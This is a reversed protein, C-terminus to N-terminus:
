RRLWLPCFIIHHITNKNENLNYRLLSKFEIPYNTRLWDIANNISQVNITKLCKSLDYHKFYHKKFLYQMEKKYLTTQLDKSTINFSTVEEARLIFNIDLRNDM